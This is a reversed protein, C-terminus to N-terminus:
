AQVCIDRLVGLVHKRFNEIKKFFTGFIEFLLNMEKKLIDWFHSLKLKANKIPTKNKKEWHMLSPIGCYRGGDQETSAYGQLLLSFKRFNTGSNLVM